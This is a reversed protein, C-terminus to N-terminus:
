ILFKFLTIKSTIITYYSKLQPHFQSIFHSLEKVNGGMLHITSFNENLLQELAEHLTYHGAQVKRGAESVFALFRYAEGTKRDILFVEVSAIQGDPLTSVYVRLANLKELKELLNYVKTLNLIEYRQKGRSLEERRDFLWKKLNSDVSIKRVTVNMKEAYRLSWRLSKTYKQLRKEIEDFGIFIYEYNVHSQFGLWLFPRIDNLYLPNTMKLYLFHKKLHNGISTLLDIRKRDDLVYTSFCLGLWHILPGESLTTPFIVFKSQKILPVGVSLSPSEYILYYVKGNILGCKYWEDVLLHYITRYEFNNVVKIWTEGDVAEVKIM